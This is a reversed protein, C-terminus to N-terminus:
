ERAPPAFGHRQVLAKVDEYVARLTRLERLIPTEPAEALARVKADVASPNACVFGPHMLAARLDEIQAQAKEREEKAWEAAKHTADIARRRWDDREVMIGDRSENLAQIKHRLRAIEDAARTATETPTEAAHRATGDFLAESLVRHAALLDERDRAAAARVKVLESSLAKVKDLLDLRSEWTADTM